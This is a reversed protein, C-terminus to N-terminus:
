SGTASGDRGPALEELLALTRGQPRLGLDALMVDMEDAAARVGDPGFQAHEARLLDRWLVQSTADGRLGCRAAQGAAAEDGSDRCIGVLRHAADVLLDPVTREAGTRAIWSYRDACAGGLLPGRVLRLARHLLDREAAVTPARRSRHLLAVVIQWDVAVDGALLVRGSPDRRLRHSGDPLTGLWDGVRDITADRVDGTVGRPWLAGALVTPHAGEPHLALFALMERALDQRGPDLDGPARVSVPGLIGVRAPSAAWAGDDATGHARPLSPRGDGDPDPPPTAAASFLAHLRSLTLDGIRNASVTLGLAPVALTGSDDVELRWRAGPLEGAVVVAVGHDALGRLRDALGPDQAHGVCVHDATGRRHGTLVEDRGTGCREEIALLARDAQGPGLATLRDPSLGALEGPLNLATVTADASWPNTGLEVAVARVVHEAVAPSGTVSIPGGVAALDLLVDRGTVDRGLGVLGPWPSPSTAVSRPADARELRWRAGGDLVTWPSPAAPDAPALLVELGTDDLVAAYLGPPRHGGAGLGRLARDLFRSRDPDAGARLWVEAEVVEGDAPGSGGSRRRRALMLAAVLGAGLLGSTGLEGALAGSPVGSVPATGSAGTVGRAAATGDPLVGTGGTAGGGARDGAGTGDTTRGAGTLEQGPDPTRDRVPLTLRDVGVADEPMALLWGPQILRALHLSGGDPQRRGSNLQFIEQYRRGNGLHREAIEWLSDHHRGQPPQVVYVKRGVLDALDDPDTTVMRHGVVGTVDDRDGDATAAAVATGSGGAPRDQTGPTGDATRVAVNRVAVVPGATGPDPVTAGAPGVVTASLLAAGVLARVLRQTHGALPLPAALVGGRLAAGVELVTCAVFQTWALWVVAVLVTLLQGVGITGTLDDRGPLSTPVPPAGYGALLLAPVGLVVAALALGSALRHLPPTPAQVTATRFRGPGAAPRPPLTRSM